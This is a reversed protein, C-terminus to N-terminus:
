CCCSGLLLLVAHIRFFSPVVVAFLLSVLLPPFMLFRLPTLMLLVGAAVASVGGVALISSVAPIDTAAPLCAVAPVASGRYCCPQCCGCVCCAPVVHVAVAAPIGAVASDSSEM